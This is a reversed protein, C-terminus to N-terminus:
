MKVGDQLFQVTEELFQSVEKQKEYFRPLINLVFEELHPPLKKLQFLFLEMRKLAPDYVDNLVLLIQILADIGRFLHFQYALIGINRAAYDKLEEHAALLIPIVQDIIM